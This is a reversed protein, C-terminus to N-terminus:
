FPGYAHVSFVSKKFSKDNRQPNRLNNLNDYNSLLNNLGIKTAHQPFSFFHFFLILEFTWGKTEKIKERTNNLCIYTRMSTLLISAGSLFHRNTGDDWTGDTGDWHEQRGALRGPALTRDRVVFIQAQM